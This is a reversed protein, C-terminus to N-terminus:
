IQPIQSCINDRFQQFKRALFAAALVPAKLVNLFNLYGFLILNCVEDNKKGNESVKM